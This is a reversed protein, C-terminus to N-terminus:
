KGRYRRIAERMEDAIPEIAQLSEFAAQLGALHNELEPVTPDKLARRLTIINSMLGVSWEVDAIQERLTKRM